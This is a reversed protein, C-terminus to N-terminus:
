RTRPNRSSLGNPALLDALWVEAQPSDLFVAPVPVARLADVACRDGFLILSQEEPDKRSYWILGQAWPHASRLERVQKRTLAYEHPKAGVLWENQGAAAFDAPLRLSILTVARTLELTSLLRDKLMSRPVPADDTLSAELVLAEHLAGRASLAAYYFPYYDQGDSDFRGQRQNDRAQSTNFALAPRYAM